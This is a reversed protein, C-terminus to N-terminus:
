GKARMHKPLPVKFVGKPLAGLLRQDEVVCPHKSGARPALVMAEGGYSLTMPQDMRSVLCCANEGYTPMRIGAREAAGPDKPPTYDPERGDAAPASAPAAPQQLKKKTAM